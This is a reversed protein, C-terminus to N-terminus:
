NEDSFSIPWSTWSQKVRASSALANPMKPSIRSHTVKQGHSFATTMPPVILEANRKCSASTQVMSSVKVRTAIQSLITLLKLLRANAAVASSTQPIQVLLTMKKGHSNVPIPLVDLEAFNKCLATTELTSMMKSSVNTVLGSCALSKILTYTQLHLQQLHM